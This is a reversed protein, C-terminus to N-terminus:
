GNANESEQQVAMTFWNEGESCSKEFYARIRRPLIRKKYYHIGFSLAFLVFALYAHITERRLQTNSIYAILFGGGTILAISTFLILMNKLSAGIAELTVRLNVVRECARIQAFARLEVLSEMVNPAEDAMYLFIVNWLTLMAIMVAINNMVRSFFWLGALGLCNWIFLGIMILIERYEGGTKLMVEIAAIDRYHMGALWLDRLNMRDRGYFFSAPQYFHPIAIRHKRGTVLGDIIVILFCVHMVWQLKLVWAAVIVFWLGNIINFGNRIKKSTARKESRPSLRMRLFCTEALPHGLHQELFPWQKKVARVHKRFDIRAKITERTYM